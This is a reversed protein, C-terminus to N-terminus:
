KAFIWIVVMIFLAGGLIFAGAVLLGAGTATFAYRLKQRFTMEEADPNNPVPAEERYMPMGEINMPAIVRGDDQMDERKNRKMKKGTSTAYWM